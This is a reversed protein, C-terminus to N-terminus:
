PMSIAQKFKEWFTNMEHSDDDTNPYVIYTHSKIQYMVTEPIQDYKIPKYLLILLADRGTHKSEMDAMNMEYRCWSSEVFDPSMVLVTKRSTKVATVIGEAIPLSPIFDRSHLCLSLGAEEEVKLRMTQDVFLRADDSYSIFADFEFIEDNRTHIPHSSRTGYYIYRLKWRLRYLLCGIIVCIIIITVSICNIFEPLHPRCIFQFENMILTKYKLAVVTGNTYVCKYNLKNRFTVIQVSLLWKLFPVHECICSLRNNSLDVTLNGSREGAEQLQHQMTINISQIYNNSLDIFTLNQMHTLDVYFIGLSNHSLDMYQCNVLGQFIKKPLFYLTNFSLDIHTIKNLNRFILGNVDKYISSHLRNHSINLRELSQFNSFFLDDVKACINHSLDLVQINDVGTVNGRWNFIVNFSASLERLSCNGLLLSSMNYNIALYNLKLVALKPPLRVYKRIRDDDIEQRCLSCECSINPYDEKPLAPIHGESAFNSLDIQILSTLNELNSWLYKSTTFRNNKASINKLTPPIESVVGSEFIELRNDDLHIEEIKTQKLYKLMQKTICMCIANSPVIRNAYLVRLSSNQLGYFSQGLMKFGLNTNNNLFLIDLNLRSFGDLDINNLNCSTLDLVSLNFFRAFSNNPITALDNNSLTLYNTNNADNPLDKPINQLGRNSCNTIVVSSEVHTVCPVRTRGTVSTVMLVVLAIEM